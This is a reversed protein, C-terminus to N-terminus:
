REGSDETGNNEPKSTGTVHKIADVLYKPLNKELDKSRKSYKTNLLEALYQAAVPKSIEHKVFNAYITSALVEEVTCGDRPTIQAKLDEFRKSAAKEEEERNAKGANIANDKYALWVSVFVDKALGNSFNGSANQPGLALDYELTWEDSVFTRVRQGAAKLEKEQRYIELANKDGIDKKARWKRGKTEPWADEEKLKGLIVPACDPMVDMDTLCAVPIKIQTTEVKRQFIRAYRHLGVGGVNVISAGHKTFDRNLLKALTPLLINEADGEVILVGRAFFLNAKTVDLFRELFGYDSKELQTEGERLPFPHRGSIMVLNDLKIASALNPSHTTVIIQVGTGDKSAQDQLFKIVQLQNQPHLHAEPEEILLLKNGEREQALLLLECTMFLLNNSGLGLRGEGALSLDLKELLQRLRIESDDTTGSVKISSRLNSGNLSLTGLHSDIVNRAAEVGKQKGLLEDALDGIGVVNLSELYERNIESQSNYKEGSSKIEETKLLVQSLRSGRGSSLDQEADRLPRLYTANLLLERVDRDISPGEGNEGSRVEVRRYPRGRRTEGTAKATWCVYLVPKDNSDKGYTLFEIFSKLENNTLKEFKCTIKIEPPQAKEQQSLQKEEETSLPESRVHFDTDELRNLEQDTTGLAFRLADIVATKGANNEGVLATLGPKLLLEFRKDGEGFCRFNEITIKSLYM